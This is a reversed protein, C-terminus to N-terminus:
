RRSCRSTSTPTHTLGGSTGTILVVVLYRRTAPQTFTVTSFARDRIGPQIRGDRWQTSQKRELWAEPLGAL